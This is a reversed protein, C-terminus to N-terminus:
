RSKKRCCPGTMVPHGNRALQPFGAPLTRVYVAMPSNSGDAPRLWVVDYGDIGFRQERSAVHYGLRATGRVQVLRGRYADPQSFLQVFSVPCAPM